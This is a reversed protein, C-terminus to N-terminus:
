AEDGESIYNSAKLGTRRFFGQAEAICDDLAWGIVEPDWSNGSVGVMAIKALVRYALRDQSVRPRKTKPM